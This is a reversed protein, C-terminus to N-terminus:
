DAAALPCRVPPALGEPRAGPGRRDGAGPRARGPRHGPAAPRRGRRGRRRRGSRGRGPAAAAAATVDLRALLTAHLDLTLLDTGTVRVRVRSGRPLSETGPVRFVLPLTEARVLGDKMVAAELEAVGQQELWRLTWFREIGHQFDNYASYAADFASIV